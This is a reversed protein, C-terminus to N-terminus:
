KETDSKKNEKSNMLETDTQNMHIKIDILKNEFMRLM